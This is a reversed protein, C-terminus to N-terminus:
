KKIGKFAFEVLKKIETDGQEWNIITRKSVGWTCALAEQTLGLSKRATKFQEPTM